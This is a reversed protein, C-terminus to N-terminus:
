PGPTAGKALGSAVAEAIASAESTWGRIELRVGNTGQYVLSSFRKEFGFNRYTAGAPTSITTCGSLCVCLLALPCFRKM